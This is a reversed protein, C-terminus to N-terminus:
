NRGLIGAVLLWCVLYVTLWDCVSVMEDKEVDVGLDGVDVLDLM